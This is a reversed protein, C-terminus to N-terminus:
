FPSKGAEASKPQPSLHEIFWDAAANSSIEFAENIYMEFHTIGPVVVLKKPGTLSEMAAYANDRNNFLEEKEAVIFLVPRAGVERLYRFPRYEAVMQQTELDVMRRTSFGTEFEGGQGTRARKIADELLRGTLTVPGPQANKGAIAPIQGVVAKVRSDMAAAVIVNGGAFSSGWIGIRDADVGPEGQLYSIANRIDEVQKFPILRTRKIVVDTKMRNFRTDDSTKVKETTSVFGDSGGWGRYDIVMAVLGREAFRAGYKDISFHVAAWGHALVIGPTKGESSFGKPLFLRAYCATGDSYFTVERTTVGEALTYKWDEQTLGVKIKKEQGTATLGAVLSWLITHMLIATLNRRM